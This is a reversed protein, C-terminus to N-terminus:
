RDKLSAPKFFGAHLDFDGVFPHRLVAGSHGYLEVPVAHARAQKCPVLEAALESWGSFRAKTEPVAAKMAIRSPKKGIEIM